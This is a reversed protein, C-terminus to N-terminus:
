CAAPPSAVSHDQFKQWICFQVAIGSPVTAALGSNGGPHAGGVGIRRAADRLVLACAGM